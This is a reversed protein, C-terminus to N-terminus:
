LSDTAEGYGIPQELPQGDLIAIGNRCSVRGSAVLEAAIPYIRHEVELVRAALKDASDDELVPVRGQIIPPGGDLEDTVFHVTCGHWKDQNDIARQHTHLGPYAPLLSPHINLIRGQYHAVFTPTLIRMFGALIILNPAYRDIVKILAQDFSQRDTFDQNAICETPINAKRARDLGKADAKNSVVVDIQVAIEGRGSADIISQLNTGGGSVLVAASAISESL